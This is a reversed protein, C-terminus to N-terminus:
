IGQHPRTAPTTSGVMTRPTCNADYRFLSSLSNSNRHSRRKLSLAICSVLILECTGPEPTVFPYVTGSGSTVQFDTTLAGSSDFVEISDLEIRMNQSALEDFSASSNGVASATFTFPTGFTFGYSLQQAPYGGFGLSPHVLFDNFTVYSGWCNGACAESQGFGGYMVTFVLTGSGVGGTLLVTDSFNATSGGTAGSFGYSQSRSNVSAVGYQASAQDMGSVAQFATGGGFSCSAVAIVLGTNTDSCSFTQGSDYFSGHGVVTSLLGAHLSGAFSAALALTCTLLYAKRIVCMRFCRANLSRENASRTLRNRRKRRRVLAFGGACDPSLTLRMAGTQFEQANREDTV